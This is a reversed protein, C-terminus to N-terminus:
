HGQLNSQRFTSPLMVSTMLDSLIKDQSQLKIVEFKRIEEDDEEEIRGTKFNGVLILCFGKDGQLNYNYGVHM